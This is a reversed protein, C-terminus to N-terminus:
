LQYGRTPKTKLYFIIAAINGARVADFLKQEALDLIEQDAKRRKLGLAALCATVLAFFARRTMTKGKTASSAAASPTRYVVSM